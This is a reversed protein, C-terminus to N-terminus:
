LEARSMARIPPQSLRELLKQESVTLAITRGDRGSLTRKNARMVLSGVPVPKAGTSALRRLLSRVRSSLEAPETKKLVYDDAGCDLGTIRDQVSPRESTLIISGTGPYNEKIWTAVRFGEGEEKVYPEDDGLLRQREKKLVIETEKMLNVDLIAIDIQDIGFISRLEDSSAAVTVSYGDNKSLFEVFHRITDPQDDLVVINAASIANM